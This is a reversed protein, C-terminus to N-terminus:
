LSRRRLVRLQAVQQFRMRIRMLQARNSVFSAYVKQNKRM